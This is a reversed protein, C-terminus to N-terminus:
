NDQSAEAYDDFYQKIRSAEITEAQQWQSGELNVAQAAGAVDGYKNFNCQTLTGQYNIENGAKLEEKGEKFTTVKKGPARGVPGLNQQIAAPDTSGARQIALAGVIFSDYRSYGFPAPNFDDGFRQKGLEEYHQLGDGSASGSVSTVTEDSDIMDGVENAVRQTQVDGALLLPADTFGGDNWATIAQLVADIGGSFFWADFDNNNFLDSVEQRLNLNQLSYKQRAVPTVGEIVEASTEISDAISVSNPGPNHMIAIRSADLNKLRLAMALSLNADNLTTRWVWAGDDELNDPTMRDGGKDNKFTTGGFTSLVPTELREIFDWNAVLGTSNIGSVFTVNQVNTWQQLLERQVQPDGSKNDQVNVKFDKGLPGGAENIQSKAVKTGQRIPPALSSWRGTLFNTAGVQVPGSSGGGPDSTICGALALAGASGISKLYTRRRTGASPKDPM